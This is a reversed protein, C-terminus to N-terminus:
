KETYLLVNSVSKELIKFLHRGGFPGNYTNQKRDNKGAGRLWWTLKQSRGRM